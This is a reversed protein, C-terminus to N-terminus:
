KVDKIFQLKSLVHDIYNCWYINNQKVKTESCPFFTNIKSYKKKKRDMFLKKVRYGAKIKLYQKQFCKLDLRHM